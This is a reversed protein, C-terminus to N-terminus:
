GAKAGREIKKYLRSCRAEFGTRSQQCSRPPRGDRLAVEDGRVLVLSRRATRTICTTCLAAHAATALEARTCYPKACPDRIESFLVHITVRLASARLSKTQSM